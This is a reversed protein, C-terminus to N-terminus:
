VDVSPVFLPIVFRRGKSYRGNQHSIYVNVLKRLSPQILLNDSRPRQNKIEDNTSGVIILGVFQRM